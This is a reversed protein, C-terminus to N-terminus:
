TRRRRRSALSALAGALLWNLQGEGPRAACGCGEDKSGPADDTATGSDEQEVAADQGDCDQDIGDGPFETAGPFAGPDLDDCDGRQTSYGDPQVCFAGLVKIGFGDGDSDLYYNTKGTASPDEDDVLGDCDEDVGIEDCVETAAPNAAPNTDDCDPETSATIYGEPADCALVRNAPDTYGDGDSDAWWPLVDIPDDDVTGDCDDDLENCTEDAGPQVSDRSDDCDGPRDVYGEPRECFEGSDEGGFDDSDMDLYYLTAGVLSDDAENVLGDCDEDVNGLDCIEQAGPNIRTSSDNCDTNDDVFGVIDPCVMASVASGYGDGDEDMYRLTPEGVTPDADDCDTTNTTGDADADVELYGYHVHVRGREVGHGHSGIIVDDFGDGDVDGAPSLAAGLLDYVTEGDLTPSAESAVGTSSGHYLYARGTETDTGPAGVMVDDYGDGDVDGASAVEKGFLGEPAEGSLTTAVTSSLGEASGHFVYARGLDVGHNRAGVILDDYGDGNVDGAGAISDGFEAETEEGEVILDASDPLGSASGYLIHVRGTSDDHGSEGIAVDAYGDGNVDGIGTAASGFATDTTEGYYEHAPPLALGTSSGLFVYVKGTSWTTGTSAAILDAYGDGNVDGAGAVLHGFLPFDDEEDLTLDATTSIGASTGYHLYIRGNGRRYETATVVIDDLGDGTLDGVMAVTYGFSDGGAEGVLRTDATTSFGTSSGHYIYAAGQIGRYRPAGVILDVYGDGNVDGGGSVSHGFYHLWDEGDYTATATSYIPDIVLPYSAAADDVTVVLGERGPELWAPLHQGRADVAIVEDVWWARGARDRLSVRGNDPAISTAGELGVEIRLPGEGVPPAPVTWGQEVGREMAVWWETVGSGHRELPRLCDGDALDIGLCPGLAPAGLSVEQLAGSRGWRTTQIRLLEDSGDRVHMGEGTARLEVGVRPLGARIHGADDVFSRGETQWRAGMQETLASEADLSAAEERHCGALPIITFLALLAHM